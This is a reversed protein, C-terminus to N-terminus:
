TGFLMTLSWICFRVSTKVYAEEPLPKIETISFTNSNKKTQKKASSVKKTCVSRYIEGTLDLHNYVGLHYLMGPVFSVKM